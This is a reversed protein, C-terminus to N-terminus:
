HEHNGRHNKMLLAELRKKSYRNRNGLKSYPIQGSSTMNRLTKVSVRLFQAAEDSNMWESTLSSPLSDLKTNQTPCTM